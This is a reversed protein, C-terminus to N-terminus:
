LMKLGEKIIEEVEMKETDIQELVKEIAKINYGLVQLADIADQANENLKAKNDLEEQEAVTENTKIKDKLELIIRQATKAGIGPLKKLTVVDDTIVALAFKSPEINSLIALASKAGIGGVSILLEFMSLEENTMFGYLSVDDEMVRMYTFVKIEDEIEKKQIASETMFVKYGVGNVEIVMFNSAKIAVRGKLFAIM